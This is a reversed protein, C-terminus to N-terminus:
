YPGHPRVWATYSYSVKRGTRLWGTDIVRTMVTKGGATWRHISVKKHYSTVITETRRRTETIQKAVPKVGAGCGGLPGTIKGKCVWVTVQRSEQYHNIQTHTRYYDHVELDFDVIICAAGAKVVACTVGQGAEIIAEETTGREHTIDSWEGHGGLYEDTGALDLKNIPDASCYDYANASGGMVPDVQMFRGTAPNYLRVGMQVLGGISDSARQRSGLWGYRTADAANSTRPAGYETYESYDAVGNTDEARSTAVIDGHMNALQLAITGDQKQIAAMGALGVINRTWSGDVETTWAPSDEAGSYHHVVTGPRPGGSSTMSKVRGLPDRTFSTSRTEQTLSAVLDNAFYGISVDGTGTAHAAPIRTTRGLDDYSYGANIIRDAQDYDYRQVSPTTSTSCQGDDGSPYASLSTRNTNADFGYVRTACTGAYSDTVKVLRGVEDYDYNQDSGGPGQRNAVRGHNDPVATFSLWSVNNKAYTLAVQTGTNDYRATGTLGGPYVQRTLRGDPDYAGTFTGGGGSDVRTMLGRREAGGGADVGNYTFTILGKGDHTTAIQGDVNFTVTSVNGTADTTSVARGFSDYEVSVTDGGASSTKTPLGTAPDFSYTTEPVAAGGEGAPTAQAQSKTVRGAADHTFTLIRTMQNAVETRIATDGYYTYASERAPLPNGSPQAAPGVRCPWGSWEPKNGCAATTPHAGATFYQFVTTGADSGNSGPTRREIERGAADYRVRNVIADQGQVPTTTSTAKRLTWGSADGSQIPDYDMTITQTDVGAPVATGDIVIPDIKTTTALHYDMSSSPKGEDYTNTTRQRASVLEGGKLRVMRVPGETSLLDKDATYTSTSALLNAREASDGRTAVYLDTDETPNLAQARNGPTLDWVVNGKDDYRTASVQWAGAGYKATNVARGNVDSYVLSAYEWDAATSNYAGDTGRPPLHSAPFLSTGTVPLGVVQGWKATQAATLDIPAGSGGIPIDYAVAWTPDIEGGERQVHALRGANDYEIRWPALGAPTMQSIRGEGTYYYITALNTRPDTVQRLHGSSDYSYTALGVTKMASTEPDFATLSVSKIQDKFDGWGSSVGTATTAAAYSLELTRCGPTLTAGCQVGAATPTLIRTIRAKADRFYTVASEAAPGETRAVVWRENVKVYTTKAGARDTVTLEENTVSISTGDAAEGLGTYVTGNNTYTYTSGDPGILQIWGKQSADSPVYSSVWSPAAPFGAQWGPGFIRSEDPVSSEFEPSLSRHTRVVQVGFGSADTSKLHFDGNLHAVSGPGINSIAHSDSIASRSLSVGIPGSCEETTGGGSFCARLRVVGETEQSGKLTKALDWLLASFNQSTDTRAQPWSGIPTASGPAFVDQPPVDSWTAWPMTSTTYEYTVGNRTSPAASDLTITRHTQTQKQATVLGGPGIGLRYAVVDSLNHAKDRTRVYLTHWGDTLGQKITRTEGLSDEWIGAEEIKTPVPNDFEWLYETVDRSPSSFSCSTEGRPGWAGEGSTGACWVDPVEPRTADISVPQWQSWASELDGDVARSRWRIRWGDQLTGEPLTIKAVEGTPVNNASGSWILGSGQGSAAPDHEVEFDARLTAGTGRVGSHLTPRTTTTYLRGSIQPEQGATWRLQRTPSAVPVTRLHEVWPTAGYTVVLKPQDAQTQFFDWIFTPRSIDEIVARLRLGHAEAGTAWAKAIDTIAVSWPVDAAPASAPTCISPPTSTVAGDSTVAPQNNWFVWDPDWTTTVREVMLQQGTPCNWLDGALDLRANVIQQGVLSTTDFNLLSRYFVKASWDDSCISAAMSVEVTPSMTVKGNPCPSHISRGNELPLTIAPDVTVPYTTAPDMLFKPDPLLLLEQSGNGTKSIQVDIDGVRASKALSSDKPRVPTKAADFMFPRPAAAVVKGKDASIHLIGEKTESLSLGKNQIPFRFQVPGTPRQRLVVDHQVGAPLATVVIDAGPGAADTFVAKNGQITPVPLAAPANLTFEKGYEPVLKVLPKKDGGGSIELGGFAARPKLAGETAVLTTDIPTWKDSQKIRSPGNSAELTITGDPNVYTITSETTEDTVVVRSGQLRASM